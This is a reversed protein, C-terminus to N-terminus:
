RYICVYTELGVGVSIHESACQEYYRFALTMTRILVFMGPWPIFRIFMVGSSYM